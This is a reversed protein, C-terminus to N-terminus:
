RRGLAPNRLTRKRGARTKPTVFLGNGNSDVPAVLGTSGKDNPDAPDRSAHIRLFTGKQGFPNRRGEPGAFPYGSFDGGGPKHAMYRKGKGNGSVSVAEDAPQPFVACTQAFRPPAAPGSGM